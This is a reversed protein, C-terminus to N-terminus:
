SLQLSVAESKSRRIWPKELFLRIMWHRPFEAYELLTKGNEALIGEAKKIGQKGEIALWLRREYRYIGM